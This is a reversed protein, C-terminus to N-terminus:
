CESFVGNEQMGRSKQMQHKDRPLIGNGKKKHFLNKFEITETKLM